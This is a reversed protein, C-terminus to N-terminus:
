QPAVFYDKNRENPELQNLRFCEAEAEKLETFIGTVMGGAHYMRFVAWKRPFPPAPMQSRTTSTSFEVPLVDTGIQEQLKKIELEFSPILALSGLRRYEILRTQATKLRIQLYQSQTLVTM